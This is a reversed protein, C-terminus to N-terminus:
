AAGGAGGLARQEAHSPEGVEARAVDECRACLVYAGSAQERLALPDDPDDTVHVPRQCCMCRDVEAPHLTQGAWSGSGCPCYGPDVPAWSPRRCRLCTWVPTAPEAFLSAQIM